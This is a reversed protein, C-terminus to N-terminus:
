SRGGRPIRREAIVRMDRRVELQFSIYDGTGRICRATGFWAYSSANRMGHRDVTRLGLRSFRVSGAGSEVYHSPVTRRRLEAAEDPTLVIHFPSRRPMPMERSSDASLIGVLHWVDGNKVVIELTGPERAIM